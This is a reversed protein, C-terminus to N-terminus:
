FVFDTALSYINVNRGLLSTTENAFLSGDGSSSVSTRDFQFKVDMNKRFNWRVGVSSTHQDASSLVATMAQRVVPSDDIVLVKIPNTM